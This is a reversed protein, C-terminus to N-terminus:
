EESPPAQAGDENVTPAYGGQSAIMSEVAGFASDKVVPVAASTEALHGRAMWRAVDEEGLGRHALDDPSLLDGEHFDWRVGELTVHHFFATVKIIKSM